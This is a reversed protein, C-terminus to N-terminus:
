QRGEFGRRDLGVRRLAAALPLSIILSGGAQFTNGPLEVLAAPLGYLLVEAAFYGTAMLLGGLVLGLVAPGLRGAASFPRHGVYGAVYGELGKIFFTFPAWHPYGSLIDALSSGLSGAWFASRGGWLLAAAFIFTDGLNIFGQTAPVPVKFAMTALTVLATFLATLAFSRFVPENM